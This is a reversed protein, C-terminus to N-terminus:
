ETGVETNSLGSYEDIYMDTLGKPSTELIRDQTRRLIKTVLKSRILKKFDQIDADMSRQRSLVIQERVNMAKKLILAAEKKSKESVSDLRNKGEEDISALKLKIADLKESYARYLSQAEAKRSIYNERRELLFNKIKKGLLFRLLFLLILFNILSYVLSLYRM